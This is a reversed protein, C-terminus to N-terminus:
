KTAREAAARCDEGDCDIWRGSPLQVEWAPTKKLPGPAPSKHAYERSSRYFQRTNLVKGDSTTVTGTSIVERPLLDWQWAVIWAVVSAIVVGVIWFM